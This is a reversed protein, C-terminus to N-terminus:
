WGFWWGAFLLAAFAAAIWGPMWYPDPNGLGVSYATLLFWILAALLAIIALILLM